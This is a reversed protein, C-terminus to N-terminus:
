RRRFTSSRNPSIAEPKSINLQVEGKSTVSATFQEKGGDQTVYSGSMRWTGKDDPEKVQDDILISAIKRHRSRTGTIYRRVVSKAEEPSGIRM